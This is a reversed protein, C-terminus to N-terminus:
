LSGALAYGIEIQRKEGGGGGGSDGGGNDGGGSNSRNCVRPFLISCVLFCTCCRAVRAISAAACRFNTLIKENYRRLQFNKRKQLSFLSKCIATNQKFFQVCIIRQM